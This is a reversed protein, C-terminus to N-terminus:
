IKHFDCLIQSRFVVTYISSFAHVFPTHLLYFCLHPQATPPLLLLFLFLFPSPAPSPLGPRTQGDSDCKASSSAGGREGGFPLDRRPDLLPRELGKLSGPAQVVSALSKPLPRRVSWTTESPTEYHTGVPVEIASCRPCCLSHM